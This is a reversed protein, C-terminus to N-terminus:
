RCLQTSMLITTIVRWNIAQVARTMLAKAGSAKGKKKRHKGKLAKPWIQGM